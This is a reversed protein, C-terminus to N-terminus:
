DTYDSVMDKIHTLFDNTQEDFSYNVPDDLRPTESIRKVIYDFLLESTKNLSKKLEIKKKFAFL